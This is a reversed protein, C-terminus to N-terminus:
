NSGALAAEDVPCNVIELLADELGETDTLPVPVATAGTTLATDHPLVDIVPESDSEQETLRVPEAGVPPTLTVSDLPLLATVTGLEMVTGAVALLADNVALTAATVVACDTVTLAAVPLVDFVTERCNFAAVGASVMLALLIENPPTVTFLEVVCVTVSVELPVAATVTFETATLPVLKETEGTLRGAVRLGPWASLTM